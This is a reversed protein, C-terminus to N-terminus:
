PKQYAKYDHFLAIFIPFKNQQFVSLHVSNIVKSPLLGIVPCMCVSLLLDDM